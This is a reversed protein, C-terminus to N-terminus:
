EGMLLSFGIEVVDGIRRYDVWGRQSAAFALADVGGAPTDLMRAWLTEFLLLGRAGCLHGLLLAYAASAPGSEARSRVKGVRGKVHGSLTWSALAHRAISPLQIASYRAPYVTRVPEELMAATVPTGRPQSLVEPATVRLLPDRAAACLVALMPQERQSLRWLTRLTRYLPLERRLGYLERLRRFVVERNARTRKLTINEDIVLRGLEEYSAGEGSAAFLASVEALMISRSCHTGVPENVFGHHM